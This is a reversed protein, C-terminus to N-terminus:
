DRPGILKEVSAMLPANPELLMNKVKDADALLQQADLNTDGRKGHFYGALWARSHRPLRARDALSGTYM